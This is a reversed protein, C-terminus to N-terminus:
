KISKNSSQCKYQPIITQLMEALNESLLCGLTSSEWSWYADGSNTISYYNM